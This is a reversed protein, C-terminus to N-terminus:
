KASNKFIYVQPHDYVTFAEEAWQDPFDLPIGLWRLSPYSHFEKVFKYPLRNKFLDEYFKSGLPYKQPVTPVSGWARNSSLIYYDGKAMLANITAWKEPTDPDFVPLQEGRYSKQQDPLPLPLGDDWHESLILSNAPITQFIYRSAAVRSNESIYISSIM